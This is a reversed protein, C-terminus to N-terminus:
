RSKSIKEVWAEITEEYDASIAQFIKDSTIGAVNMHGTDMVIVAAVLLFALLLRLKFFFANEDGPQEPDEYPDYASDYEQRDPIISSRGYLLRERNSMDYQDEHYRSRVQQVLRLKQETTVNSM